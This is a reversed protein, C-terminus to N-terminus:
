CGVRGHASRRRRGAAAVVDFGADLGNVQAIDALLRSGAHSVVGTGDATM